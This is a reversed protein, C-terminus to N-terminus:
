ACLPFTDCVRGMEKQIETEVGNKLSMNIVICVHIFTDMDKM